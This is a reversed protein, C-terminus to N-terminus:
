ISILNENMILFFLPDLIRKSGVAGDKEEPDKGTSSLAVFNIDNFKNSVFNYTQIYTRKVFNKIEDSFAIMDRLYEKRSELSYIKNLNNEEYYKIEALPGFYHKYKKKNEDEKNEDEENELFKDTKTFVVIPKKRMKIDEESLGSEYLVNIYKNLLEHLDKDVDGKKEIVNDPWTKGNLSDLLSFLIIPHDINVFLNRATQMYYQDDCFEGPFDYCVLIIKNYKFDTPLNELHLIMPIPIVNRTSDAFEGREIPGIYIKDFGDFTEQNLASYFYGEWIRPLDRTIKYFFHSLFQTKGHFPYGIVFLFIVSTREKVEEKFKRPIPIGSDLLNTCIDNTHTSIEDLCFPCFKCKVREIIPKIEYKNYLKKMM